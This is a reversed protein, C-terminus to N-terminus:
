DGELCRSAAHCIVRPTEASDVTDLWNGYEHPTGRIAWEMNGAMHFERNSRTQKESKKNGSGWRVSIAGSVTLGARETMASDSSLHRPETATLELRRGHLGLRCPKGYTTCSARPEVPVPPRSDTIRRTHHHEEKGMNEGEDGASVDGGSMEAEMSPGTSLGGSSMMWTFTDTNAERARM